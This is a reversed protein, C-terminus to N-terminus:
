FHYKESIQDRFATPSLGSERKFFRGFYSPDKFGLSYAIESTNQKTHILLRKAEMVVEQRILQGPSKGTEKKIISRLHTTSIGLEVAYSSIDYNSTIQSSVIKKFRRLLSSDGDNQSSTKWMRQINMLLIHFYAQLVSTKTKQDGQEEDSLSRVLPDLVGQQESNLEFKPTSIMDHFFTLENFEKDRWASSILFDEKFLFVYGQLQETLEWFHIQGPSLFYLAPPTHAHSEFDIIHTGKGGTLYMLEYFAHRHPAFNAVLVPSYVTLPDYIFIEFLPEQDHFLAFDHTLIDNQTEAM